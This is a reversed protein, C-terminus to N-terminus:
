IFNGFGLITLGRQVLSIGIVMGDDFCDTSRPSRKELVSKCSNPISSCGHRPIKPAIYTCLMSREDIVILNTHCFTFDTCTHTITDWMLGSIYKDYQIVLTLLRNTFYCRLYYDLTATLDGGLRINTCCSNSMNTMFTGASLMPLLIIVLKLFRICLPM